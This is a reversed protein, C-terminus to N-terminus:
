RPWFTEVAGQGTCHNQELTPNGKQGTHMPTRTSIRGGTGGRDLVEFPGCYRSALKACARMKLSSRRPKIKLYVRDGTQFERPTKKQGAYSKQRNQAVKLNQEIQTVQQEMEKLMDPRFSIRNVPNSWSAPTNCQRGYLVKFPSM